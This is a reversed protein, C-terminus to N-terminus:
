LLGAGLISPTPVNIFKYPMNPMPYKIEFGVRNWPITIDGNTINGRFQGSGNPSIFTINGVVNGFCSAAGEFIVDGTIIGGTHVSNRFIVNGTIDGSNIAGNTFTINNGIITAFNNSDNIGPDFTLSSTDDVTCTWLFVNRIFV